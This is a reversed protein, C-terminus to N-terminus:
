SRLALSAISASASKVFLASASPSTTHDQRRSAPTLNELLLSRPPSPSLFARDGPLNRLFGNFGNRAPIGPSGTCGHHSVRTSEVCWARSRTCRAGPMGRARKPPDVKCFAPADRRPFASVHQRISVHESEATTARWPTEGGALRHCAGAPSGTNRPALSLILFGCRVLYEAHASYSPKMHPTAKQFDDPRTATRLRPGGHAAIKASFIKVTASRKNAIFGSDLLWRVVRGNSNEWCDRCGGPAAVHQLAHSEGPFCPKPGRLLFEPYAVTPNV